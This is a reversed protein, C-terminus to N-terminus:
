PAFFFFYALGLAVVAGLTGFTLVYRVNHGKTGQRAEAPPVSPKARERGDRQRNLDNMTEGLRLRTLCFAAAGPRNWKRVFRSVHNV